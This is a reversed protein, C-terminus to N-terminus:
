FQGAALQWNGALSQQATALAVRGSCVEDHLRRELDDKSEAGTGPPAQFFAVQGDEDLGHVSADNLIERIAQHIGAEALHRAIIADKYSRVMAAELRMSFALETVVVGLLALVLTVALLAFGRQDTAITVSRM